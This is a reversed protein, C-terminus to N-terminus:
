KLENILELKDPFNILVGFDQKQYVVMSGLAVASARGRKVVDVIHDINGAGGNAIVPIRVSSTISDILETDYGKWTGDRDISTVLLEGAGLNELEIAWEVPDLKTRQTGGAVYVEYKNFLNKKVDMSCVICQSGFRAAAEHIFLKNEIAYSNIAVKELGINLIKKIDDTSKIGGGYTLPMFCENAIESLLQFDPKRKKRSALIDLFILEDVELENFIRVTNCPDGVYNFKKFRVTKVLAGDRLLLVPIVRTKLM